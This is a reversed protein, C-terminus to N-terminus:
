LEVLAFKFWYNANLTIKVPKKTELFSMEGVECGM